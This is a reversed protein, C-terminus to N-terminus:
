LTMWATSFWMRAQLLYFSSAAWRRPGSRGLGPLRVEPQKSDQGGRSEAGNARADPNQTPDTDLTDPSYEQDGIILKELDWRDGEGDYNLWATFPQKTEGDASREFVTAHIEFECPRIVQTM